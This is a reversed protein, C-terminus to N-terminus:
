QLVSVSIGENENPEEFRTVMEDLIKPSITFNHKPLRKNRLIIRSKITDIDINVYHIIARAPIKEAFEKYTIRDKRLFFGDDLIVDIGKELFEKSVNMILERCASVRRIHEKHGVSNISYKEFCTILWYDLNLIVGRTELRLKKAYTSKGSAPLGCILHLTPKKGQM